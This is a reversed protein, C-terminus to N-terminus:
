AGADSAAIATRWSFIHRAFMTPAASLAFVAVVHWTLVVVSADFPHIFRIGFNTLGAVAIAAMATTLRPMLPAGRRLMVVIAIAPLAGALVTFPFCEWHMLIDPLGASTAWDAACRQGISGVWVSLPVLPALALARLHGPVVTTFAAVAALVGTALAAAQEVIFRRDTQVGFAPHPWVLDLLVLCLLSWACWTAARMWPPGLPRVASTDTTLRRILEATERSM